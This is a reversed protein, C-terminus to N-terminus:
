GRDLSHVGNEVEANLARPGHIPLWLYVTTLWAEGPQPESTILVKGGHREVCKKVFHLGMGYGSREEDLRLKGQYGPDFVLGLEDKEIGIGYNSVAVTYGKRGKAEYLRGVVDIWRTKKATGRFSYKVANDFVNMLAKRLAIRDMRVSLVKHEGGEDTIQEMDVRFDIAQRKAKSIYSDVCEYVLKTLSEYLYKPRDLDLSSELYAYHDECMDILKEFRNEWARGIGFADKMEIKLVEVEAILAQLAIVVDHTVLDASYRFESRQKLASLYRRGVSKIERMVYGLIDSESIEPIQFWADILAQRQVPPLTELFAELQDRAEAMREQVRFEGGILTIGGGHEDRVPCVFNHVGLWCM